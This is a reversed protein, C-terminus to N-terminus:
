SVVSRDRISTGDSPNPTPAGDSGNPTPTGGSANPTTAWYKGRKSRVQFVAIARSIVVVQRMGFYEVFASIFLVFRDRPRTDRSVLMTQVGMGMESFLVGFLVALVFFLIAFPVNLVGLVLTVVITIYGLAEVFTAGVEFIWLYPIGVMGIRGYRPNFLMGRHLWLVEIIGREWMCRQARLDRFRRPVETWCVPDPTFVIRYRQHRDQFHRHLRVVMEMDDAVLGRTWGGAEISADRRFIGFAGSIIMVSGIRSWAARAIFFARTYELIQVREVWTRPARVDVVAGDVVVAGNLPRLSGGVAVVADDQVFLRSARALAEPSLLSDADVVCVLPFRAVNLAANIADGRGGNEKELVILGPYADSRYIGTVPATEISRAYVTPQAVLGFHDILRRLTDDTAGDVAVVVEFQPYRLALMSNLNSIITEEENYAPVLISVPKYFERAVLDKLAIPSLERAYIVISRLGVLASAAYILALAAFYGLVFIEFGRLISLVISM